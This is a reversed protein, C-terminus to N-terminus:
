KQVLTKRHHSQKSIDPLSQNRENTLIPNQEQMSLERMSQTREAIQKDNKPPTPTESRKESNERLVQERLDMAIM